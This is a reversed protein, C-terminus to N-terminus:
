DTSARQGALSELDAEEAVEPPFLPRYATEPGGCTPCRPLRLVDETDIIMTDFNITVMRGVPFATGSLLFHVAALATFGALISVYSPLGGFFSETQKAVLHRYFRRAVAPSPSRAFHLTWLDNYCATEFPVFLPGIVGNNGDVTTLLWPKRARLAWRNICHSVHLAPQELAVVTLDAQSLAQETGLGDMPGPVADVTAGTTTRLLRALEESALDAGAGPAGVSRKWFETVLRDDVLQLTEIGHSLLSSAIQAGLPGAGVVLASRDGLSVDGEFTYRLYQHLPDRDAESLVGRQLFDAVVREYEGRYELPVPDLLENVTAPGQELRRFLPGLQNSLDRDRHLESPLSATGHQILVENDSLVVVDLGPAVVIQMLEDGGLVEWV